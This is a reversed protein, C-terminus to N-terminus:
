NKTQKMDRVVTKSSNEAVETKKDVMEKLGRIDGHRANEVIVKWVVLITTKKRGCVRRGHRKERSCTEPVKGLKRPDNAPPTVM